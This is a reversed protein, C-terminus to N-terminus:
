KFRWNMMRTEIPEHQPPRQGKARKTRIKAPKHLCTGRANRGKNIPRGQVVKLKKTSKCKACKFAPKLVYGGCDGRCKRFDGAIMDRYYPRSM